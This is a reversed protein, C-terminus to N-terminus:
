TFESIQNEKAIEKIKEIIAEKLNEINFRRRMIEKAEYIRVVSAIKHTADQFRVTISDRM